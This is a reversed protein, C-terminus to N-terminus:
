EYNHWFVEDFMHENDDSDDPMGLLGALAAVSM